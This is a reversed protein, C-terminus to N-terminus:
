RRDAWGAVQAYDDADETAVHDAGAAPPAARDHGVTDPEDPQKPEDSGSVGPPNEDADGPRPGDPADGPQGAPDQPGPGATTHGRRMARAASTIFFVFVAAALIILALTGFHTAEVTMTATRGLPQGDPAALSLRLTTSGIAAAKVKIKKSQVVGPAVQVIGPNTLVEFGNSSPQSVRVVVRVRIPYGLRNDITVPISGKQGGLTDRGFGVVSVGREQQSVYESIRRLLQRARRGPTDRWASSEVGAVAQYLPQSPTVRMSQILRVGRNVQAVSHLLSRRLALRGISDPAQRRVQGPANRTAALHGASVPTLWPSDTTETLLARALGSPPDWRRPPAVVIARAIRPAQAAIMATEALFRQEVAFRAGPASLRGATPGIVQTLTSDSLLVRMEGGEGNPTHTIASPTYTVPQVTPMAATSLIVTQIGNVAALDQILPYNALGGAPWAAANTLAAASGGASGAAPPSFDHGLVQHGVTRGMVFARHLDGDLNQRTLAGADVDAYPTTFAPQSTVATKLQRLWTRAAPSAPYGRAGGCTRNPGVQYPVSMARASALLAPDIAYTLRAAQGDAGAAASLLGALRGGSRLSAALHNNLLQGRGSLGPCPSQDPTDILPWIWAIDERPRVAKRAAPWFPLFTWSTGLPMGVTTVAQASLPYVGFASLHVRGVRLVVTWSRSAHPRVPGRIRVQAGPVPADVGPDAGAEYQALQDRDTFPASSSALQLLVGRVAASTQNTVSGTVTIRQGPRAYRSSMSTIVVRLPSTTATATRGGAELPATRATSAAQAAPAPGALAAPLALAGALGAALLLRATVPALAAARAAAHDVAAPCARVAPRSPM